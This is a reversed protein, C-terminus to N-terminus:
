PLLWNNVNLLNVPIDQIFSTFMKVFIFAKEKFNM